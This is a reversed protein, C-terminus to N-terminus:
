VCARRRRGWCLARQPDVRRQYWRYRSLRANSEIASRRAHPWHRRVTFRNFSRAHVCLHSRTLHAHTCVFVHAHSILTRANIYVHAHAHAYAGCVRQTIMRSTNNKNEGSTQTYTRCEHVFAHSSRTNSHIHTRTFHTAIKAACYCFACTSPSAFADVCGVGL